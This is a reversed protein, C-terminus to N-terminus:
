QHIEISSFFATWSFWYAIYSNTKQLQTGLRPGSIATGFVDWGSGENDVMVMPLQNQVASFELVTCDELQRNFVVAFNQVSSGTAVVDMGGVQDNIVSISSAFGSIPYVKSSTGVNIGLVREKRHLRIDASNDVSFLLSSDTRYSGYPYTGYPREYGTGPTMVKTGPYM